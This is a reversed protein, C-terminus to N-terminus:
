GHTVWRLWIDAATGAPLADYEGVQEGVVDIPVSCIATWGDEWAVGNLDTTYQFELVTGAPAATDVDVVARGEAWATLDFRTRQWRCWETLESTLNAFVIRSGAHFTLQTPSKAIGGGSGDNGTGLQGSALEIPPRGTPDIVPLPILPVTM